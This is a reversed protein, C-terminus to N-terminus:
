EDKPEDVFQPGDINTQEVKSQDKQELFQKGLWILLTPNGELAVELQKRRLSVKGIGKHKAYYEKWSMDYKERIRRDITEESCRFISAVERKTCFIGCLDELQEFDLDIYTTVGPGTPASM